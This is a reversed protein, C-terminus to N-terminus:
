FNFIGAAFLNSGGDSYFNWNALDTQTLNPNNAFLPRDNTSSGDDISAM